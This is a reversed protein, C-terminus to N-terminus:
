PKGVILGAKLKDYNISQTSVTLFFGNSLINVLADNIDNEAKDKAKATTAVKGAEIASILVKQAMPLKTFAESDQKINIINGLVSDLTTSPDGGRISLAKDLGSPSSGDESAREIGVEYAVFEQRSKSRKDFGPKINAYYKFAMEKKATTIAQLSYESQANEMSYYGIVAPSSSFVTRPDKARESIGSLTGAVSLGLISGGSTPARGSAEFIMHAETAKKLNAKAKRYEDSDVETIEDLITQARFVREKYNEIKLPQKAVPLSVVPIKDDSATINLGSADALSAYQEEQAKLAQPQGLGGFLISEDKFASPKYYSDFGKPLLSPSVLAKALDESSIGKFSEIDVASLDMGEFVNVGDKKNSEQYQTLAKQLSTKDTYKKAMNAAVLRRKSPDAIMTGLEADALNIRDRSSLVASDYKAKDEEAYQRAQQFLADNKAVAEKIEKDRGKAAGLAGVAAGEFAKALTLGLSM